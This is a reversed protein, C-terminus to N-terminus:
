IMNFNYEGNTFYTYGKKKFLNEFDYNKVKNYLATKIM